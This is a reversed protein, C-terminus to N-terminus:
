FFWCRFKCWEVVSGHINIQKKFIEYRNLFKAVDRRDVFRPFNKLKMETSLKAM